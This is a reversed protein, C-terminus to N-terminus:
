EMKEEVIEYVLTVSAFITVDGPTIPPAPAAEAVAMGRAFSVPQEPLQAAASDLNVSLIRVLKLGAATSMTRADQLANAMATTIAEQRHTRPDALDFAINDISNAGAGNAAEILRGALELQTTRLNLTNSVSYGVIEPRWEADAGRPRRSWVPRLQFRGTEYEKEGLGVKQVAEVVAQMKRSNEAMATGAEASETVVGVTIRLQDAPRRLEAEGRVTLRPIVRAEPTEIIQAAATVAPLLLAAAIAHLRFTM